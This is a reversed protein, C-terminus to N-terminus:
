RSSGTSSLGLLFFSEENLQDSASFSGKARPVTQMGRSATSSLLSQDLSLPEPEFVWAQHSPGLALGETLKDM